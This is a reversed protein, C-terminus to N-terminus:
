WWYHLVLLDLFTSIFGSVFVTRYFVFFFSLTMEEEWNEGESEREVLFEVFCFLIDVWFWSKGMESNFGCLYNLVVM